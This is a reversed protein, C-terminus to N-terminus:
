IARLKAVPRHNPILMSFSSGEGITSRFAITGGMQTIVEKTIYLGVGAGRSKETGRYFLQFINPQVESSMGIGNDKIKVRCSKESIRISIQVLKKSNKENRYVIANSILHTLITHLSSREVYLMHTQNVSLKIDIRNSAISEQFQTLIEEVLKEADIPKLTIGQKSSSLFKELDNLTVEMKSVITQISQLYHKPDAFSSQEHGELLNVLGAISKLPGRMTHSCSYIFQEITSKARILELEAVSSSLVSPEKKVVVEKEKNSM